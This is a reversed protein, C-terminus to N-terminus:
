GLFYRFLVAFLVTAVACIGVWEFSFIELAPQVSLNNTAHPHAKASADICENPPTNSAGGDTSANSEFGYYSEVASVMQEFLAWELLADPLVVFFSTPRLLPKEEASQHDEVTNAVLVIDDIAKEPATGDVDNDDFGDESEFSIDTIKEEFSAWERLADVPVLSPVKEMTDFAQEFQAWKALAQAPVLSPVKEMTAVTTEFLAWKALAQASLHTPTKEMAAFTNEYTTWKTLAEAPVLSPIKEMADHTKEFSAWKTLAQAPVQFFSPTDYMPQASASVTIM